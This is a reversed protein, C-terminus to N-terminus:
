GEIQIEDISIGVGSGDDGFDDGSPDLDDPLEVYVGVGPDNANRASVWIETPPDEDGHWAHTDWTLTATDGDTIGERIDLYGYQPHELTLTFPADADVVDVTVLLDSEGSVIADDPETANTAAEDIALEIEEGDASRIIDVDHTRADDNTVVSIQDTTTDPNEWTINFTETEGVMLQKERTVSGPLLNGDSNELRVIQTGADGENEITIEVDLIENHAIDISRDASENANSEIEQVIFESDDGIDRRIDVAHSESEDDSEVTIEDHEWDDANTDWRIELNEEDQVHLTVTESARPEGDEDRLVITQTTEHQGTNHVTVETVLTDGAVVSKDATENANSDLIDIEFVSETATAPNITVDHTIEDNFSEVSVEEVTRDGIETQWNIKVTEDEGADLDIQREALPERDDTDYIWIRQEGTADGVNEVDVEFNVQQKEKRAEGESTDADSNVATIQFDESPGQEITVSESQTDDPTEIGLDVHATDGTEEEWDIAGTTDWTLDLTTEASINIVESDVPVGEHDTLMVPQEGLGEGTNEVTAMVEISEGETVTEETVTVDTIELNPPAVDTVEGIVEEFIEDLDDADDGEYFNGDGDGATDKIYRLEDPNAGGFGVTHVTFDEGEHRDAWDDPNEGDNDEGDTLVIMVKEHPSDRDEGARELEALAEEMGGAIDTGGGPDIYLSDEVQALNGTMPQYTRASRNFETLSARDGMTANLGDLATKVAFYRQGSSDYCLTCSDTEVLRYIEEGYDESRVEQGSVYYNVGQEYGGYCSNYYCEVTAWIEPDESSGPVTWGANATQPSDPSDTDKEMSWSVWNAYEGMSGTEDLVFAVDVPAREVERPEIEVTATDADDNGITATLDDVVGDEGADVGATLWSLTVTESEGPGLFVETVNMPNNEFDDIVLPQEDPAGGVNEVRMDVTVPEGVVVSNGDSPSANTGTIDVTFAPPDFDPGRVLVPEEVEDDLSQVTINGSGIDRESTQWTLTFSEEQGPGLNLDENWDVVDNAINSLWIDQSGPDEGQNAITVDVALEEGADVASQSPEMEVIEYQSDRREQTVEVAITETDDGTDVRLRHDGEDGLQTHWGIPVVETVGSDIGETTVNYFENTDDDWLGIQKAEDSDGANEIEAFVVLEEEEQVPSNSALSRIEFEPVDDDAEIEVPATATDDGTDIEIEDTEQDGSTTTWEFIKEEPDDSPHLTYQEGTVPVGDGGRDIVPVTRTAEDGGEETNNVTVAVELTEGEEIPDGPGGVLVDVTEIEFTAETADVQVDYSQPGAADHPTGVSLENLGVPALELSRNVWEAESINIAPEEGAAVWPAIEDREHDRVIGIPEESTGSGLNIVSANIHVEHDTLELIAPPSEAHDVIEGDTYGTTLYTEIQYFPGYEGTHEAPQEVDVASTLIGNSDAGPTFESASPLYGDGEERERFTELTRDSQTSTNVVAVWVDDDIRFQDNAPDVGPGSELVREDPDPEEVSVWEEDYEDGTGDPDWEDAPDWVYWEYGSGDDYRIATMYDDDPDAVDFGNGAEALEGEDPDYLDTAFDTLGTYIVDDDFEISEPSSIGEGFMGFGIKVENGDLDALEDSRWVTVDRHTDLESEAFKAWGEAFENEVTMNIEAPAIVSGDREMADNVVAQVSVTDVEQADKSAVIGGESIYDISSIDIFNMDLNTDSVQVSPTRLIAYSGDEVEILGGAQYATLVGDDSEHTITGLTISTENKQEDANVLDGPSGTEATAYWWEDATRASITVTGADGDATFDEATGSPPEWVTTDEISSDALENLRDDLAFMSDQAMRDDSDGVTDDLIFLGMGILAIATLFALSIVLVSGYIESIGREETLVSVRGM